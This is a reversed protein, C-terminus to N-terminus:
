LKPCDQAENGTGEVAVNVTAGKALLFDVVEAFAPDRCYSTAVNAKGLIGSEM